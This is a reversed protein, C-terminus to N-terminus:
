TVLDFPVIAPIIPPFVLLGSTQRVCRPFGATVILQKFAIEVERTGPAVIGMAERNFPASHFLRFPTPVLLREPMVGFHYSTQSLAPQLRYYSQMM